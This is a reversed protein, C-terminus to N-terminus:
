VGCIRGDEVKFKDADINAGIPCKTCNISLLDSNDDQQGSEVWYHESCTKIRKEIKYDTFEEQNNEEM